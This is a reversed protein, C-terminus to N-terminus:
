QKVTISLTLKHELVLHNIRRAILRDPVFLYYYDWMVKSTIRRYDSCTKAYKIISKDFFNEPYEKIIGTKTDSFRYCSGSNVWRNWQERCYKLEDETLPKVLSIMNYESIDGPSVYGMDPYECRQKKIFDSCDRIDVQYLKEGVLVSMLYLLMLDRASWGHWLIVKDYKSLDTKVFSKLEDFYDMNNWSALAFCLEKDSFDKPLYCTSLDIPLYAIDAEIGMLSLGYRLSGRESMGKVVHLTKEKMLTQKNFSHQSESYTM